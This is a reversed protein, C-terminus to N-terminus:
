ILAIVQIPSEDDRIDFLRTYSNGLTILYWFQKGGVAQNRMVIACSNTTTLTMIDNTYMCLVYM